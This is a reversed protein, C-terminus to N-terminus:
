YLKKFYYLSDPQNHISHKIDKLIRDPNVVASEWYENRTGDKVKGMNSFVMGNKVSKFDKCFPLTNTLEEITNHSVNIWVDADKFLFIAEEIDIPTSVEKNDTPKSVLVAGADKILTGIYSNPLAAYWVGQYPEGVIVKICNSDLSCVKEKEYKRKIIYYITDGTEKNSLLSAFVKIWEARALPTNEMWEYVPYNLCKTNGITNAKNVYYYPVSFHASIQSLFEYDLNGDAGINRIKNQSVKNLFTENSSYKIVDSTAGSLKNFVLTDYKSLESVFALHTTSSLTYNEIQIKPLSFLPNGEKDLYQISDEKILFLTEPNSHTEKEPQKTNSCGTALILFLIYQFLKM